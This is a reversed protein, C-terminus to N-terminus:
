ARLCVPIRHRPKMPLSNRKSVAGGGGGPQNSERLQYFLYLLLAIYGFCWVLISMVSVLAMVGYTSSGITVSPFRRSSYVEDNPAPHQYISFTINAANNSISLFFTEFLAILLSCGAVLQPRAKERLMSSVWSTSAVAHNGFVILIPILPALNSM